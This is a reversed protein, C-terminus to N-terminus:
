TGSDDGGGDEDQIEECAIMVIPIGADAIEDVSSIRFSRAEENEFVVIVDAEVPHKMLELQLDKVTM